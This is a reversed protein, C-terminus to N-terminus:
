YLANILKIWMEISTKRLKDIVQAATKCDAIVVEERLAIPGGDLEKTCRHIICGSSFLNLDFAKQQPDKGKLQPYKVIDGPHGNFIQYQECVDDPVIRLWGHLTVFLEDDAQKCQEFVDKYFNSKLVDNSSVHMIKCQKWDDFNVQKANTIVLDPWKNLRKCIAQLESGTQSFMAIWKKNGMQYFKTSATLTTHLQKWNM